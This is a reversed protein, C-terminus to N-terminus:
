KPKPPRKVDFDLSKGFNEKAVMHHVNAYQERYNDILEQREEEKETIATPLADTAERSLPDSFTALHYQTRNMKKSFVSLARIQNDM